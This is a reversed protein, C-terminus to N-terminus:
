RTGMYLALVVGKRRLNKGIKLITLFTCLNWFRFDPKEVKFFDLDWAELDFDRDSFHDFIVM